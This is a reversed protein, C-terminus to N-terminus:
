ERKTDQLWVQMSDPRNTIIQDVGLAQLRLAEEKSDVTWPVIQMQRAHVQKVLEPTVMTFEPSFVQPVFHLKAMLQEFSEGKDSMVYAVRVNPYKEHLYNLGDTDFSQMLLRDGLNKSLLVKMCLDTFTRYDPTLFGDKKRSSKIEINYSVPPLSRERVYHEVSDILESLLPVRCLLSAKHPFAPNFRTGVDYRRISDYPMSYLTHAKDGAAITDGEPTLAKLPNLYSDHSVVVLSDQSIHLDMELVPIGLDVAHLMAPLTNEPYIAAGGRHAQILPTRAVPQSCSLIGGGCLTLLICHIPKM